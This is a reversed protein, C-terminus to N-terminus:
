DLYKRIKEYLNNGHILFGIDNPHLRLDSYFEPLEPTLDFGEIVTVNVLPECVESIFRSISMFEGKESEKTKHDGRWIPTLAFIKADPYQASLKEYFERCGAEFEERKSKSWDNTGYAVTIYKPDLKEREAIIDPCFIEPNIGVSCATGASLM